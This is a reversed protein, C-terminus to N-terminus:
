CDDEDGEGDDDGVRSGEPELEEGGLEPEVGGNVVKVVVSEWVDPIGVVVLLRGVESKVGWKNVLVVVTDVVGDGVEVTGEVSPTHVQTHPVGGGVVGCGSVVVEDGAVEGSDGVSSGEIVDDVIDAEVVGDGDVGTGSVEEVGVGLVVELKVGCRRDVWVM